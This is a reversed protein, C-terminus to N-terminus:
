RSGISKWDRELTQATKQPREPRLGWFWRSPSRKLGAATNIRTYIYLISLHTLSSFKMSMCWSSHQWTSNMSTNKAWYRPEDIYNRGTISNWRHLKPRRIRQMWRHVTPKQISDDIYKQGWHVRMLAGKPNMTGGDICGLSGNAWLPSRRHKQLSAICQHDFEPAVALRHAIEAWVQKGISTSTLCGVKFM